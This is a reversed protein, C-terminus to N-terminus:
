RNTRRKMEDAKELEVDTDSLDPVKKKCKRESESAPRSQSFDTCIEKFVDKLIRKCSLDM